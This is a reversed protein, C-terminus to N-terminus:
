GEAAAKAPANAFREPRYPALMPQLQGTMVESAIFEGLIASLTVGSHTAVVYVGKVGPVFGSVPLGDTPVPRYGVRIKEPVASALAPWYVSTKKLLSMAHMQALEPSPYARLTRAYVPDHVPLQKPPGGVYICVAQGNPMQKFELASSVDYVMKTDLRIPRTWVNLGPVTNIALKYGVMAMLDPTDAGTAVILQDLAFDGRTTKVGKMVGNVMTIREIACPFLVKAGRLKAYALMRETVDVPDVHGDKPLFFGQRTAGPTLYPCLELIKKEDVVVPDAVTPRLAAIRKDLNAAKDPLNTWSISGGWIVGLNLRKDLATWAEMSKLRLDRYQVNVTSPNIWALSAQTAGSGPTNKEFVIVDAGLDVLHAAISAGIIGGGIIGVKPKVKNGSAGVACGTMLSAGAISGALTGVFTRRQM